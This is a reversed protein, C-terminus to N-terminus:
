ARVEMLPQSDPTLTLRLQARVRQARKNVTVRSVGLEEAAEEQTMGDVFLMIALSQDEDTLSELSELVARRAEADCGPAAGLQDVDDLSLTARVKKNRRLLDLCARDAARCLFRYPSQADRLSAGRRFLNALLDQVGDEALSRDRLLLSCRRELMFGYRRYLETVETASLGTL